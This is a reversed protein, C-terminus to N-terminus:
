TNETDGGYKGSIGANVLIFVAIIPLLLVILFTVAVLRLERKFSWLNYLLFLNM